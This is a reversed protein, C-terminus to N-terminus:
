PSAPSAAPPGAASRSVRAVYEDLGVLIARGKDYGFYYAPRDPHRRKWFRRNEEPQERWFNVFLAEDDMAPGNHRPGYAWSLGLQPPAVLEHFVLARGVGRARMLDDVAGHAAGARALDGLRPPWFLCCAALAGAVLLAPVARAGPVAAGIRGHGGALRRLGDAALLALPPLAEFMYIPGTTGVGVKPAILRYVFSAAVM